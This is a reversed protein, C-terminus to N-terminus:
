VSSHFKKFSKRNKGLFTLSFVASQYFLRNPYSTQFISASKETTKKDAIVKNFALRKKELESLLENLELLIDGVKHSDEYAVNEMPEGIKAMVANNHKEIAANAFHVYRRIKEVLAADVNSYLDYQTEPINPIIMRRLGNQFDEIERNFEAVARGLRIYDGQKWRIAM